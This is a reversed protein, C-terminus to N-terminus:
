VSRSAFTRPLLCLRFVQRGMALLSNIRQKAKSIYATKAKGILSEKDLGM